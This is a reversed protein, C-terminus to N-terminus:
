KFIFKKFIVFNWVAVMGILLTKAIYGPIGGDILVGILISTIVVNVIALLVYQSLQIHGRLKQGVSSFTWYKNLAFSVSMGAFFSIANAVAPNLQIIYYILSFTGIEVAYATGGAVLYKIATISTTSSKM